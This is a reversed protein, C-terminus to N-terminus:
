EPTCFIFELCDMPQIDTQDVRTKADYFTTSDQKRVRVVKGPQAKVRKGVSHYAADEIMEAVTKTTDTLVLQLVFDGQFNSIIPLASM